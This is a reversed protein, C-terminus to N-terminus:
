IKENMKPFDSIKRHVFIKLKFAEFLIVFYATEEFVLEGIKM